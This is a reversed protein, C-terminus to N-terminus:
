WREYKSDGKTQVPHTKTEGRGVAKTNAGPGLHRGSSIQFFYRTKSNTKLLRAVLCSM